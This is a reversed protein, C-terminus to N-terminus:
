ARQLVERSRNSLNHVGQIDNWREGLLRTAMKMADSMDEEGLFYRSLFALGGATSALAAFLPLLLLTMQALQGYESSQIAEEFLVFLVLAAISVAMLLLGTAARWFGGKQRSM